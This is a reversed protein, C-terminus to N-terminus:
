VILGQRRAEVVAEHRSHVELKALVGRVYSKVTETSLSLREAIEANRCGLAVYGLVDRERATLSVRATKGGAGGIGRLKEEIARLHEELEPDATIAALERLALYSETITDSVARPLPRPDGETNELLTIRRDVEDRIEIERALERASRVFREAVVEGIPAPTRLGGYMAARTVGRVVVPVALLSEIGESAVPRDYDHTIHRSAFYDTVAGPRQEAIARGGLGRESSIVLNRLRRGRTGVHGTLVLDAGQVAGGFLIPLGTASGLSRLEARLTDIDRPRLVSGSM